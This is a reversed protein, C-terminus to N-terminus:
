DDTYRWQCVAIERSFERVRKQFDPLDSANQAARWQVFGAEDTAIVADTIHWITSAISTALYAPELRRDFPLTGDQLACLQALQHRAEDLHQLPSELGYTYASMSM